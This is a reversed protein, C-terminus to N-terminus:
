LPLRFDPMIAIFKIGNLAGVYLISRVLGACVVEHNNRKKKVLFYV